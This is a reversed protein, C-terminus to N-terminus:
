GSPDAADDQRAAHEGPVICKGTRIYHNMATEWEHMFEGYFTETFGEVFSRGEPGIATHCYTIQADSKDEEVSTLRITLKCVTSGPTVKLMEVHFVGPDHVTVVWVAEANPDETVFVCDPEVVGSHSYVSIPDWGPEWEAERVPCYLPFVVDPPAEIRQTYTRTVRTPELINM